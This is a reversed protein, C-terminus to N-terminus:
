NHAPVQQQYSMPRVQPNYNSNAGREPFPELDLIQEEYPYLETYIDSASRRNQPDLSLM